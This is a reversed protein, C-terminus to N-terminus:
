LTKLLEEVARELQPDVNKAKYAPPNFVEIDPQAPTFDMNADSEKVWWGRFPMRIISGDVLREAGTSIVAGFTPRGVLKGIGLSKYAHSFIEANSYSNENSMAISPKTWASLPLRESYPYEDRFKKQDKDLDDTAGRPITYAHQEVNLVAMLYDTTWGGGNYRVDIVIGDKGYGAAMLEREFREFSTWNMGRIHLYGLRGNSYEETLKRRTEVWNDYKEDSLSTTPWLVVETPQDARKIDLLVRQNAYGNLLQYFNESKVSQQNVQTIIDGVQLRSEDRAAPSKDLVSTVELGEATPVVEVGLLGTRTEQTDKQNEGRYLGMHSANVQGLMLNFIYQFDEKTSAKLALPRYKEKLTQWDNGHFEPDYFGANLAQWAEDFIQAREAMHEINQQSVTSLTEPEDKKTDVKVLTGREVLAFLSKGDDSLSLSRPNKDGKVVHKKDEGNWKIKFLDQDMKFNQRGAGGITYYVHEGEKDFALGSENGAFRTVQVLRKYIGDLDIQMPEVAEEAAESEDEAEKADATEEVFEDRKWEEQSRQWDSEKLWAFWIDYDGNNRMSSFGLKSGDPSWVPSYDGKPHMSVNVPAQSNDAAHIFIESNFSLDPKAYALWHSDPSWSVGSPTAWGDLLVVPNTLTKDDAVDAVVLKGRGERYAVKKGDPSVLPAREQAETRTIATVSHKLSKFLNPEDSDASTVAFIDNQGDRDSVFLVTNDDLWAVDRDRAAGTTLRVSRKDEKDNRKVFVDGRVVYVVLKGNPSVSYEDLSDTTSKNTVPDFRFDTPISLDLSQSDGGAILKVQDAAQYVIHNAQKDISFHEVGFEREDTIQEARKSGLKQKFVNYKGARSSIFYLENNSSWQPMFDNGDFDTLQEYEGTETDYIWINRNAPGRYDERSIRCTGRVFAIKKGDPSVVADFGLADMFRSETADGSQPVGYVEWEREVEAYLRRTNFLVQNDHSFGLIRDPASHYTLRDPRGGQSPMVFVDDNGFRDSSFAITKGDKSWKPSSEYGEHITLRNPNTGSTSMTWIDGQYSFAIQTGDPSIEPQMILPRESAGNSASAGFAASVLLSTVLRKM